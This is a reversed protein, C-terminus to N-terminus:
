QKKHVWDIEVLGSNRDIYKYSFSEMGFKGLHFFVKEPDFDKCSYVDLQVIAPTVEDWVHMAIHSTTIIAVSTVGRNGEDECYWTVPGKAIEMELIQVLERMWSDVVLTSTKGLYDTFPDNIEARIILHKHDM